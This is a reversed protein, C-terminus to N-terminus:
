HRREPRDVLEGRLYAAVAEDISKLETTIAEVGAAQLSEYAPRGMGRALLVQCDDIPAIMQAHRQEHEHDGGHEHDHGHGHDHDHDHDHGRGHHAPKERLERDTIANDEVTHVLYYRARGFHSSITQQDDTVAAIKM